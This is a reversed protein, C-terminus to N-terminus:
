IKAAAFPPLLVPVNVAVTFVGVDTAKTGAETIPPALLTPLTVNPRTTALSVTTVSFTTVPAEATTEMGLLMITGAPLLLPVQVM